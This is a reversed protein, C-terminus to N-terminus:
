GQSHCSFRPSYSPELGDKSGGGTYVTAAVSDLLDGAVPMRYGASLATHSVACLPM